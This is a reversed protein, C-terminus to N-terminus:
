EHKRLKSIIKETLPVNGFEPRLEPNSYFQITRESVIQQQRRGVRRGKRDAKIIESIGAVGFRRWGYILRAALLRNAYVNAMGDPFNKFLVRVYNYHWQCSRSLGIGGTRLFSNHLAVVDPAYLCSYGKDHLRVCSDFEEGGFTCEEDLFGIKMLAKARLAHAAGHYNAVEISSEGHPNQQEGTVAHRVSFSLAGLRQNQEFYNIIKALASPLLYADDDLCVVIEGEAVRFGANRGAAVGLNRNTLILTIRQEKYLQLLYERSGDLSGNDVVIIELNPSNVACWVSLNQRLDGLRNYSLVVISIYCSSLKM